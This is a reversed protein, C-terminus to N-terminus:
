PTHLYIKASGVMPVSIRITDDDELYVGGWGWAGGIHRETLDHGAIYNVSFHTESVEVSAVLGEASYGTESVKIRAGKLAETMAALIEKTMVGM